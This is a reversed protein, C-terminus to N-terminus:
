KTVKRKWAMKELFFCTKSMILTKHVTHKQQGYIKVILQSCSSQLMWGLFCKQEENLNVNKWHKSCQASYENDASYEPANEQRINTKERLVFIRKRDIVLM